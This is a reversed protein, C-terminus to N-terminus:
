SGNKEIVKLRKIQVSMNDIIKDCEKILKNFEDHQKKKHFELRKKLRVADTFVMKAEAQVLISSKDMM